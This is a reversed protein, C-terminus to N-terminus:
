RSMPMIVYHYGDDTTLLAPSTAGEVQMKFMQEIDLVKCFDGLYRHDVTMEIPEEAYSIPIEILSEGIDATNAEMKLTGDGFTLNVGRKEKNTVIAAQRIGSYVANVPLDLEIGGANQPIVQQWPPYRGEVLRTFIVANQTRIKVQNDLVAIDVPDDSSGITREIVQIASTPVITTGSSPEYGGVTELPGQMMAMRRGDTGVATISTEALELFVGGLAFRTNDTDTAFMTRRLLTGLVRGSVAFYRTEEFPAIAPFEDPNAAPLKFNSQAGYVQIGSDSTEITITEENFERLISSMYGVPLLATGETNVDVTGEVTIRIGQEGDTASLSVTGGSATVKVNKFIAKPSRPSVVSAAIFFADSFSDLAAQIKM